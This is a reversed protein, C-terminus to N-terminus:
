TPDLGIALIAKKGDGWVTRGLVKIEPFATFVDKKRAVKCGLFHAPNGVKIRCLRM